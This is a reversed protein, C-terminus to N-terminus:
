HAAIVEGRPMVAPIRGGLLDILVRIRGADDLEILEGIRDGFPGALVRVAQGIRLAGAPRLCGMDDTQGRLAEVLGSPLPAPRPPDGATVLRRVGFTGNVSRWQDRGLDLAIFLYGPFFPVRRIEIRGAHRWTKARLPLFVRFGQDGLRVSAAPERHPRCQVAFWREGCSRDTALARRAPAAKARDAKGPSTRLQM